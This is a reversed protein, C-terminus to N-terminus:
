EPQQPVESASEDGEEPEDWQPDGTLFFNALHNAIQVQEALNNAWGAAIEFAKVRTEVLMSDSVTWDEM